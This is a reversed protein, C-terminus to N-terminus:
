TQKIKLKTKLIKKLKSIKRIYEKIVIDTRSVCINDKDILQDSEGCNRCYYVLSDSEEELLRIYLM